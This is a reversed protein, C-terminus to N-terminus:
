STKRKATEFMNTNFDLNSSNKYWHYLENIAKEPSTFTIEKFEDMLQKNDGSYEPNIGKEKINIPLNKVSM